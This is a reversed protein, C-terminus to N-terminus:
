LQGGFFSSVLQGLDSAPMRMRLKAGDPRVWECVPNMSTRGPLDISVFGGSKGQNVKEELLVRLKSHELHLERRIRSASYVECLDVAERWLEKPMAARQHRKKKRWLEIKRKLKELKSNERKM